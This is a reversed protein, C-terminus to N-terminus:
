RKITKNSVSGSNVFVPIGVIIIVSVSFDPPIIDIVSDFAKIVLIVFTVVITICPIFVPTILVIIVVPITIARIITIGPILVPRTLVITVFVILIFLLYM